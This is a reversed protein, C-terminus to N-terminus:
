GKSMSGGEPRWATRLREAVAERYAPNRAWLSRGMALHELRGATTQHGTRPDLRTSTPNLMRGAASAMRAPAIAGQAMGRLTVAASSIGGALQGAVNNVEQVLWFMVSTFTLLVLSTFLTNQDSDLDVSNVIADFGKFILGMVAAVLAIRLIYTMVQGFWSDFFKATVPWLLLAIFFPGIGLMLTLGAKAVVIMGGAPIALLGTAVAIIIANLGEGLMMGMETFGRNGAREWLDGAIGWGKGLAADIVQYVSTPSASAGTGAFASTFGTEMSQLSGVVWDSYTSANLALAGIFLYKVCTKIFVSFPMEVYGWGIAYGMLTLHITAGGIFFLTFTSIVEGVTGSIFPNLAADLYQGIFQFIMPDM